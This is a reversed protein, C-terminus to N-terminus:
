EDAADSTYLLCTGLTLNGTMNDGSVNVFEENIDVINSQSIVRWAGDKYIYTVGTDPNTWPQSPDTVVPPFDIAM